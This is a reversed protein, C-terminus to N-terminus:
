TEGYKGASHLLRFCRRGPLAHLSCRVAELGLCARAAHFSVRVLHHVYDEAAPERLAGEAGAGAALSAQIRAFSFVVCVLCILLLM